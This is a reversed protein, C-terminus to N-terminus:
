SDKLPQSESPHHLELLQKIRATASLAAEVDVLTSGYTLLNTGRHDHPVAPGRAMLLFHLHPKNEGFGVLCVKEANTVDQIAKGTRALLAGLSNAEDSSMQGLSEVHRRLVIRLWGPVELGGVMMVAWSRDRYVWGWPPGEWSQEWACLECDSPRTM